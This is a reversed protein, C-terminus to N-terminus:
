IITPPNPGLRGKLRKLKEERYKEVLEEIGYKEIIQEIGNLADGIEEALTEKREATSGFRKIKTIEKIVECFEEIAVDLQLDWGWTIEAQRYLKLRDQKSMM